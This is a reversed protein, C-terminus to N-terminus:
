QVTYAETLQHTTYTASTDGYQVTVRVDVGDNTSGSTNWYLVYTEQMYKHAEYVNDQMVSLNYDVGPDYTYFGSSALEAPNTVGQAASSWAIYYIPIHEATSFDVCQNHDASSNGQDYGDCFLFLAGLMDAPVDNDIDQLASFVPDYIISNQGQHPLADIAPDINGSGRTNYVPELPAYSPQTAASFSAAAAQDNQEMEPVFVNNVTNKLENFDTTSVSVSSDLLLFVAKNEAVDGVTTLTIDEPPIVQYPGSNISEEVIINSRNLTHIPQQPSTGAGFDIDIQASLSLYFKVEQSGSDYNFGSLFAHTDGTTVIDVEMGDGTLAFSFAGEDEDNSNITVSADGKTGGSSPTFRLHFTTSEGPAVSYDTM